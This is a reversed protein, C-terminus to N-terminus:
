IYCFLRKSVQICLLIANELGEYVVFHCKRSGMYLFRYKRSMCICIKGGWVFIALIHGWVFFPWFKSGMIGFHGFYPLFYTLFAWFKTFITMCFIQWFTVMWVFSHGFKSGWVFIGFNTVWVFITTGWIFFQGGWVLFIGKRSVMYWFFVNESVRGWIYCFKCNQFGWICFICKQSGMYLLITNELSGHVHFNLKMEGWKRNKFPIM